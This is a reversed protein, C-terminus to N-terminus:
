VDSTSGQRGEPIGRKKIRQLSFLGAALFLLGFAVYADAALFLVLHAYVWMGLIYAWWWGRFRIVGAVILLVATFGVLAAQADRTALLVLLLYAAAFVVWPWRRRRALIRRLALDCAAVFGLGAIFNLWWPAAPRGEALRKVNRMMQREMVFHITDFTLAQRLLDWRGMPPVRGRLLLRTRGDALPIFNFSGWGRLVFHKPKDLRSVPPALRPSPEQRRFLGLPYDQPTLLVPMGLRLEQWEPRISETNRINALFLNELWHYSYFGGRDQGIQAQWAWAQEPPANVDLARTTQYAYGPLEEDGPFVAAREQPTSGWHLLWPRGWAFYFSIVAAFVLLFVLTSRARRKKEM